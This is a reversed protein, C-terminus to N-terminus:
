PLWDVMGKVNGVNELKTISVLYRPYRGDLITKYKYFADEQFKVVTKASFSLSKENHLMKMYKENNIGAQFTTIIFGCQYTDKLETVKRIYPGFSDFSNRALQYGIVVDHLFFVADGYCLNNERELHILVEEIPLNWTNKSTDLHHYVNFIGWFNSAFVLSLGLYWFNIARGKPRTAGLWFAQLPSAIVLNRFKSSIGTVVTLIVFLTYSVFRSNHSLSRLPQSTLAIFMVIFMGAAGAFGAISIPFVGQNSFQAVFVGAFTNFVSGMQGGRSSSYINIFILLQPLYAILVFVLSIFLYKLKKKFNLTSELWYILILAPGILFAVYGIYGLVFLGLALKAWYTVDQKKPTIALWLLVPIFYAYWRISSGWMLFAPNSALLLFTLLAVRHGDKKLISESVYIFATCIALASIIRVATWSGFVEYLLANILYSLPPHVDIKQTVLYASLGYQEVLNINFFEDDFGYTQFATSVYVISALTYLLYRLNVM